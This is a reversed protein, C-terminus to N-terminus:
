SWALKCMGYCALVPLALLALPIAVIALPILLIVLLISLFFFLIKLPLLIVFGLIRFPLFILFGIIKFPLFLLDAMFVEWGRVLYIMLQSVSFPEAIEQWAEAIV